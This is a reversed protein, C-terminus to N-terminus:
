HIKRSLSEFLAIPALFNHEPDATFACCNVGPVLAVTLWPLCKFQFWSLAVSAIIM